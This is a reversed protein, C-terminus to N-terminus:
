LLEPLGKQTPLRLILTHTLARTLVCCTPPGESVTKSGLTNSVTTERVRRTQYTVAAEGSFM